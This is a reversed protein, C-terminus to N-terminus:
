CLDGFLQGFNRTWPFSHTGYSALFVCIRHIESLVNQARSMDQQTFDWIELLASPDLPLFSGSWRGLYRQHLQWLRCLSFPQTTRRRLLIPLLRESEKTMQLPLFPLHLFIASQLQLHCQTKKKKISSFLHCIGIIKLATLVGLLLLKLIGM